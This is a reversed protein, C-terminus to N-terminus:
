LSCSPLEFKSTHYTEDDLDILNFNFKSNSAKITKTHESLTQVISRLEQQAKKRSKLKEFRDHWEIMLNNVFQLGGTYLVDPIVDVESGEIDMKMVVNPTALSPNTLNPLKRTGVINKLFDSLRILKVVQFKESTKDIAKAEVAIKNIKPSLIGGGWELNTYDEDSYFRSTGQRDSAATETLIKVKWGCQQYRSEVEKLYDTHRSNPEFGIACVTHGGDRSSKLRETINGFMSDFLPNVVGKPYKEPEFLKRIQVGINTGVDLYVHYCGDLINYSHENQLGNRIRTNVILNSKNYWYRSVAILFVFCLCFTTIAIRKMFRSTMIFEEGERIFNLLM